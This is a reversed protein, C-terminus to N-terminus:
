RFVICFYVLQLLIHIPVRLIHILLQIFESGNIILVKDNLAVFLTVLAILTYEIIL